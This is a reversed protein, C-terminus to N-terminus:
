TNELRANVAASRGEDRLAGRPGAIPLRVCFSSGRPHNDEVWIRGGHVHTAL